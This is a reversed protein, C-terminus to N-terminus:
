RVKGEARLRAEVVEFPIPEGGEARAEEAARLDELDEKAEVLKRYQRLPLVVAVRRGNEDVVYQKSNRSV